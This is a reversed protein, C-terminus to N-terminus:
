TILKLIQDSSNKWCTGSGISGPCSPLLELGSETISENRTTVGEYSTSVISPATGPSQYVFGLDIKIGKLNKFAIALPDETSIQTKDRKTKHYDGSVFQAPVNRNVTSVQIYTKTENLSDDIVTIEGYVTFQEIRSLSTVVDPGAAIGVSFIEQQLHNSYKGDASLKNAVLKILCNTFNTSGDLGSVDSIIQRIDSVPLLNSSLDITIKRLSGTFVKGLCGKEYGFILNKSLDIADYSTNVIENFGNVINLKGSLRCNSARFQKLSSLGIKFWGSIDVTKRHFSLNGSFSVSNGIIVETDLVSLVTAIEKGDSDKVTDNVLVKTKMDSGGTLKYVYDSDDTSSTPTLTTLSLDSVTTPSHSESICAERLSPVSWDSPYTSRLSNGIDVFEVGAGSSGEFSPLIAGGGSVNMSWAEITRVDRAFDANSPIISLSSLDYFNSSHIQITITKSETDTPLKSAFLPLRGTLSSGITYFLELNHLNKLDDKRFQYAKNLYHAYFNKLKHENGATRPAAFGAPLLFDIGNETVAGLSECDGINIGELASTNGLTPMKGSTGSGYLDLSRLLPTSLPSSISDFVAGGSFGANLSSLALWEGSQLDITVNTRNIDILQTSNLWESWDSGDDPNNIYGNINHTQNHRGGINFSVMKYKSVYGPDSLTTSTGVDTINGAAGSGYINYGISNGNNNIKPLNNFLYRYLRDEVNNSWDLTTLGPFVDDFRPSRGYFRDGLKLTRLASFQRYHINATRAQNLLYKQIVQDDEDEGADAWDDANENLFVGTRPLTLYSVATYLPVQPIPQGAVSGTVGTINNVTASPNRVDFWGMPGNRWTDGSSSLDLTELKTSLTKLWLPLITISGGSIKLNKLENFGILGLDKQDPFDKINMGSFEIGTVKEPNVYLFVYLDYLNQYGTSTIDINVTHTSSYVGSANPLQPPVTIPLFEVPVSNPRQQAPQIQVGYFYQALNDEFTLKITATAMRCYIRLPTNKTALLKVPLTTGTNGNDVNLTLAHTPSELVPPKALFNSKPLIVRNVHSRRRVRISDAFKASKYYGTNVTDLEINFLSARSTSMQVTQKEPSSFVSSGLTNERYSASECQMSGNFLVVNESKVQSSGTGGLPFEPNYFVKNIFLQTPIRDLFVESLQHLSPLLLRELGSAARLDERSIDAYLGYLSDLIEPQISINRLADRKDSEFIEALNAFSDSVLGIDPRSIQGFGQFVSDSM